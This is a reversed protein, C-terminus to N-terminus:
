LPSTEDALKKIDFDEPSVVTYGRMRFAKEDEESLPGLVIKQDDFGIVAEATVKGNEELVYSGDPTFNIENELLQTVVPHYIEDYYTLIENRKDQEIIAEEADTKDPMKGFSVELGEEEQLLNYVQWFLEWEQKPYGDEQPAIAVFSQLDLDKLREMLRYEIVPGSDPVPIEFYAEGSKDPQITAQQEGNAVFQRASEFSLFRSGFAPQLAALSFRFHKRYDNYMRHAGRSLLWMLRQFNNRAGQWGPHIGQYKHPIKSLTERTKANTAWSKGLIDSGGEGDMLNLDEWSLTWTLYQGSENIARRKKLDNEFRPNESSAHYRYGDLYVAVPLFGPIEDRPVERGKLEAHTCRILFDATTHFQVGNSPGLRYQPQIVYHLTNEGDSLKFNYWIEGDQNFPEFLCGKDKNDPQHAYVRLIRLFRDELESEEIFGTNAVNSLGSPFVEWSDIAQIIKNFLAEARSRSLIGREYQNAYSYICHYCGDKGQHKCACDRVAEYALKLVQSFAAKDFLKELYGTGGPITDFMMLFRDMKGTAHNHEAYDRIELHQPNGNYYHRIGKELGARFMAVTTEADFEQVPLLIKLAETRMQRYLYIEELVEDNKGAYAHERYKCYAYHYDRPEKAKLGKNEKKHTASTAHGCYRCTIYGMVPMEIGKITAIRNKDIFDTAIGANTELVDVDRVFEIGFPINKLAYAGYSVEPKIRFHRTRYHGQRDREESSDDLRATSENNFSKVEQLKLFQHKNAASSWSAHGCKPCATNPAVADEAIHDCNSCFRFAAAEEKWNVVALGSIKLKYGQTYFFSGPALEKIAQRAPRVLEIDRTPPPLDADESKAGMVRAHLGVGTEPFAYNPLLGANTMYELVQRKEITKLAGYLNRKEQELVKRDDDDNGWNNDRIIQDIEGRKQQVLRYEQQLREFIKRPFEYFQGSLFSNELETFVREDVQGVYASQFRKLLVQERNKIFDILRNLFFQPDQLNLTALRLNRVFTPIFSQAAGDSTWCDICYAFYHRKLIERADLYCGPTNVKGEMMERPEEYYYLDHPEGGAVFNVILASGSKRGARGIRQLFNAPLPPVDSNITINLDGIDIGMELTSTAVLANLSNFRPRQKFDYEVLERTKRELLGTHDAAYVRPVRRRNYVQQYYNSESSTAALAYTGTCKYQLCKAGELAIASTEEVSLRHGCDICDLHVARNGIEIAAPDLCYNHIGAAFSRNLLGIEASSLITLLQAYFENFADVYTPAMQFSKRYYSHFWNDQRTYTSDLLGRSEAVETLLKPFRSQPGFRRNMYHRKDKMWNLEWRRYTGTRYKSLYEHDVGGRIRIRHLLGLLFKDFDAKAIALMQNDALWPQMAAFVANLVEPRFRVASSGTKELTRGIGANFGFESAIEWRIREDFERLFSPKYSGDPQKYAEIHVDGQRDSPFFKYLYAELSQKGSEDAYQKWYAIFDEQLQRLAVPAEQRNIVTQLATRFSFRYNRAEVYGALHAADQVGNSFILLKRDKEEQRDLDSALLQSAAVSLLTSVRGGIISMSNKTNCEPCIHVAHNNNVVRYANVELRDPGGTDHLTLTAEGIFKHVTWDLPYESIHPHDPTNVFYVNKHNSFYKNYIDGIDDEFKNRNDHKVALWGSAGCDRCFYPPFATRPEKEVKDRWTFSPEGSFNRLIGSLERVWLQVQMYLLPLRTTGGPVATTTKATAILSVISRLVAEKPSFRREEDWEPLKRFEENVFNLQRILEHVTLLGASSIEVIDWVLRLSKIERGLAVDDTSPDLQWVDLQRKLYTEYAEGTIPLTSQLKYTSPLRNLLEDKPQDFFAETSIRKEGIIAERSVPEGFVKAAYQALLDPAEEGTGITASTGVPCLQGPQLDLKLKLRRILNAVDTGQAGDYTHLEDLVLFRLLTPDELNHRWLKQYQNRMLAYDLMKFNTLLIDPPSDLISERNEIIHSEAMDKPYKKGDKGIGIFLGATLRGKLEPDQWIAKALRGAQDTALANMPYLIICKVGRREAHRHCYDLLPFLFSETKGSGTGTTLITPQPEHGDRTSLRRFAQLQHDFPPFAPKIDLPIDEGSESKVFPLKLSIYPGKFMGDREDTVFREFAQALARERFGYTAKLYELTSAQVEYAQHLPLM